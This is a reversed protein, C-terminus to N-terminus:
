LVREWTFRLPSVPNPFGAAAKKEFQETNRTNDRIVGRTRADKIMTHPTVRIIVDECYTKKAVRKMRRLFDTDEKGWFGAYDEDYGGIALFKEKHFLLNVIGDAAPRMDPLYVRRPMYFCQPDLPAKEWFNKADESLLLTDIDSVYIWDQALSCGLNRAGSCNWLINEKIRYVEIPLKLDSERVIDAARTKPSGDDVLIIAPLSSLVGVYSNWCEIQKRLMRPNDYYLFVM